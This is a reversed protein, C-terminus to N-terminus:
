LDLESCTGNLSLQELVVVLVQEPEEFVVLVQDLTKAFDFV